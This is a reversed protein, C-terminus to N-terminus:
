LTTDFQQYHVDVILDSDGTTVEGVLFTLDIATDELATLDLTEPNVPVREALRVEDATSDMFSASDIACFTVAGGQSVAALDVGAGAAFAVGAAKYAFIKNAIVIKGAGPAPVAEFPVANLALVLANAIVHRKVSDVRAQANELGGATSNVILEGKPGIGFLKGHISTLIRPTGM